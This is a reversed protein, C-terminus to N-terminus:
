TLYVEASAGSESGLLSMAASLAQVGEYPVVRPSSSVDQEEGIATTVLGLQALLDTAEPEYLRVSQGYMMRDLPFRVCSHPFLYGLAYRVLNISRIGALPRCLSDFGHRLSVGEGFMCEWM